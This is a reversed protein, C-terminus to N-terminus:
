LVSAMASWFTFGHEASLSASEKALDRATATSRCLLDVLAAQALVASLTFFHGLKWARSVVTRAIAQAREPHGLFWLALASHMTAVLSPDPGFAPVTAGRPSRPRALRRQMLRTAEAFRADFSATRVLVSAAVILHETTGLRRAVDDLEAAVAITE